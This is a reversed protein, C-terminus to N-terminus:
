RRPREDQLTNLRQEIHQLMQFLQEIKAIIQAQGQSIQRLTEATDEASHRLEEAGQRREEATQRASEQVRRLVESTLRTGEAYQRKDEQAERGREAEERHGEAQERQKERRQDRPQDTNMSGEEAKCYLSNLDTYFIQPYIVEWSLRSIFGRPSLGAGTTEEGRALGAEILLLAHYGVEEESYGEMQLEQVASPALASPSAEITLLIQRILEMDRKM